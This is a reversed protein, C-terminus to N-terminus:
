MTMAPMLMWLHYTLALDQDVTSFFLFIRLVIDKECVYSIPLELKKTKVRHIQTLYWYFHLQSCSKCNVM